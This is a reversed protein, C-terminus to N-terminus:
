TRPYLPVLLNRLENLAAEFDDNVVQYRYEDIRALEQLAEAVRRSLSEETESRRRRLREELVTVSSTRIFVSVADPCTQRVQAWGKVDIELLIGVGRARYPDVESRLTGYCNGFVDAWELFSGRAVEEHFRERTWFHYHVGDVEGARPPRTTASVSLRLPGPPSKLLAQVLTSKGSGSPGSVVVLPGQAM